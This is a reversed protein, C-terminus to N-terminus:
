KEAVLKQFRPNTRLPAWVPDLRLLWPSFMSPISLLQELLGIADDQNGTMAYIKALDEVRFPVIMADQSLPMLDVARKGEQVAETKLGLGAYAIGLSSHLRGDDSHSQVEKELNARAAEFYRKAVSPQRMYTNVLAQDLEKPVSWFQSQFVTGHFSELFDNAQSYAGGLVEVYAALYRTLPNDAEVKGAAAQALLARAGSVDGKWILYLHAKEWYSVGVDPAIEIARNFSRDAEPYNRLYKYTAGLEYNLQASRPNLDVAKKIQVTAEDFKGLRRYVSGIGLLVDADSPQGQLARTFETLAKPYDRLGHYYYWAMADHAEPLNPNTRVAQEAADRARELEEQSHDFFEWYMNAHAESLRAYAATFRPDLDVARQYMQLAIRNDHEGSSRFFYENGRLYMDYAEANDTPKAELNQREQNLLTIDLASAVQGAIDSQLKFAGTLVAESPQSWVQTEDTVKVLQPNVRVHTVGDVTEWRITGQLIYSVGLEQGIQKLTKTSKKYQMASSRAIVGLGSLGSLKSTIEETIGDAFYEQDSSGLNEFPLVVLMKKASSPSSGSSGLIRYVAIGVVAVLIVGGAILIWPRTRPPKAVEPPHDAAVQAPQPLVVRGTQKQVRRLESVLDDVHQYRDDPDKELARRVIRDLEAPVEPRLTMMPVPQENLLSYMMAAEHEGRFPAKGAFLEYLVVGFSFIDSRADVDRGQLQEPAMYALTGVTSSTRTLKLSGKLKALGFDMVKIQNKSTIMINEAKVDRHVVGNTHAEHLAEGIQVAYTLADSLRIASMTMKERLTGGDVYEMDIFTQGEYEGISHIGCVNAHNLASAAKAEQLFREQEEKYPLQHYPLFKLAVIRDLKTDRAKYVVGMGGEGLKELINYHLITKGIM